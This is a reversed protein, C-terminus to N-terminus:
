VEKILTMKLTTFHLGELNRTNNLLTIKMTSIFHSKVAYYVKLYLVVVYSSYSVVYVCHDTNPACFKPYGGV